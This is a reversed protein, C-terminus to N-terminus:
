ARAVIIVHGKAHMHTDIHTQLARLNSHSLTFTPLYVCDMLCPAPFITLAPSANTGVQLWIPPLIAASTRSTCDGPPLTCPVQPHLAPTYLPLLKSSLGGVKNNCALFPLASANDRQKTQEVAVAPWRSGM